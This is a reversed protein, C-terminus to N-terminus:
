SWVSRRLGIKRYEGRWVRRGPSAKLVENEQPVVEFDIKGCTYNWRKWIFMPETHTGNLHGVKNEDDGSYTVPSLNLGSNMSFRRTSHTKPEENTNAHKNLDSKM